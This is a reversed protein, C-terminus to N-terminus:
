LVLFSSSFTHSSRSSRYWYLFVHHHHHFSFYGKEHLKFIQKSHLEFSTRENSFPRRYCSMSQFNQPTHCKLIDLFLKYCNKKMNSCASFFKPAHVSCRNCTTVLYLPNGPLTQTHQLHSPPLNFASLQLYFESMEAKMLSFIKGSSSVM